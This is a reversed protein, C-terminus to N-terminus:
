AAAFADHAVARFADTHFLRDKRGMEDGSAAHTGGAAPVAAAGNAQM